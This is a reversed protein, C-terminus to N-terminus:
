SSRFCTGAQSCRQKARGATCRPRFIGGRNALSLWLLAGFESPIAAAAICGSSVDIHLWASVSRSYDLSSDPGAAPRICGSQLRGRLNRTRCLHTKPYPYPAVKVTGERRVRHATKGVSEGTLQKRMPIPAGISPSRLEEVARSLDKRMATTERCRKMFCPHATPIPGVWRDGPKRGYWPTRLVM